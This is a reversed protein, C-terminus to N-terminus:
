VEQCCLIYSLPSPPGNNSSCLEDERLCYQMWASCGIDRLSHQSTPRRICHLNCMDHQPCLLATCCPLRAFCHDSMCRMKVNLVQIDISRLLSKGEEDLGGCLNFTYYPFFRKYYLTNGLLQAVAACSMPRRHAFKYRVHQASLAKQLTRMDAQFGSSAIVVGESRRLMRWM